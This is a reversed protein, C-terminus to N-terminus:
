HQWVRVWDVLMRASDTGPPPAHPLGVALNILVEMPVHPIREPATVRFREVGDVYWVLRDKEWLVAFVHFADPFGAATFTGQQKRKDGDTDRWHVFMSLERTTGLFEMIDIEPPTYRSAPMMWFAPAMGGQAPIRIAAEFYGYTFTERPEAYWHDRGTSIMGSVWPYTRGDSGRIARRQATLALRGGGVSVQGPQYWELENNSSITCGNENWDYCTAWHDTDLRDGDFDDHFVLRWNGDASPKPATTGPTSSCACCAMLLLMLVGLVAGRSTM